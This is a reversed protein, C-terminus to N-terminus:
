LQPGTLGGEKQLNPLLNLGGGEGASLSSHVSHKGQNCTIRPSWKIKKVVKKEPGAISDCISFGCHNKEFHEFIFM